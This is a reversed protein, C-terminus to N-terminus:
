TKNQMHKNPINNFYTAYFLIKNLLILNSMNNFQQSPPPHNATYPGTSMPPGSYLMPTPSVAHCHHFRIACLDPRYKSNQKGKDGRCEDIDPQQHM